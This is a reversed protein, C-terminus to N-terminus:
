DRMILPRHILSIHLQGFLQHLFVCSAQNRLSGDMHWPNTLPYSPATSSCSQDIKLALLGVQWQSNAIDVFPHPIGSSQCETSGLISVAADKLVEGNVLM